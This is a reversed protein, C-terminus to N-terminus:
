PSKNPLLVQSSLGVWKPLTCPLAQRGIQLGLRKPRHGKGDPVAGIFFCLRLVGIRKYVVLFLLEVVLDSDMYKVIM